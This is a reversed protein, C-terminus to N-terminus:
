RTGGQQGVHERLVRTIYSHLSREDAAALERLRAHMGPDLRLEMRVINPNGPRRRGEESENESM